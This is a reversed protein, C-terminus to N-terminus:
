AYLEFDYSDNHSLIKELKQCKAMLENMAMENLKKM